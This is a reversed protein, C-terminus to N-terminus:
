GFEEQLGTDSGPKRISSLLYGTILGSLSWSIEITPYERSLVETSAELIGKEDELSRSFHVANLKLQHSMEALQGGLEDHLQAAGHFGRGSRDAGALLEDRAQVQDIPRLPLLAEEEKDALFSERTTLTPLSVSAERIPIKHLHADEASTNTPLIDGTMGESWPEPSTPESPTEALLSSPIPISPLTPLPKATSSSPIPKNQVAREFAKAISDLDRELANVKEIDVVNEEKVLKLLGRAYEVTQAWDEGDLRKSRAYLTKTLRPLNVSAHSLQM